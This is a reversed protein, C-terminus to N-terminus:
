RPLELTEDQEDNSDMWDLPDFKSRPKLSLQDAKTEKLQVASQFCGGLYLKVQHEVCLKYCLSM